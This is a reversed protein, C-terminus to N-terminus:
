EGCAPEELLSLAVRELGAARSAKVLVVDGAQLDSRLATLAHDVDDVFLPADAWAGEETAGRHLARAGAGVAVVRDVGLRVALRGVADHEEDSAEGLERM